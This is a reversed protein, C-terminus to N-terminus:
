PGSPSKSFFERIEDVTMGTNIALLVLEEWEKDSMKEKLEELDIM